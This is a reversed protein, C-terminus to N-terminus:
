LHAVAMAFLAGCLLAWVWSKEVVAVVGGAAALIASVLFWDHPNM